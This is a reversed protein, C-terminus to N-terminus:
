APGLHHALSRTRTKLWSASHTIATKLTATMRYVKIFRRTEILAFPRKPRSVDVFNPLRKNFDNEVILTTMNTEFFHDHMELTRLFFLLHTLDQRIGEIAARVGGGEGGGGM